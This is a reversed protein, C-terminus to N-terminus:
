SYKRYIGIVVGILNVSKWDRKRVIIDKMSSNAPQFRITEGEPFYKKVTAEDEIMAVVIEGANAQLQKRVFVYDGDHIGAEIM